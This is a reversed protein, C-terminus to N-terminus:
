DQLHLCFDVGFSRYSNVLRCSTTDWFVFTLVQNGNAVANYGLFSSDAGGGSDSGGIECIIEPGSIRGLLSGRKLNNLATIIVAAYTFTVKNEASHMTFMPDSRPYLDGNINVCFVASNPPMPNRSGLVDVGLALKYLPSSTASSHAPLLLRNFIEPVTLWSSSALTLHSM